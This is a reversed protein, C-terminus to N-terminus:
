PNEIVVSLTRWIYEPDSINAGFSATSTINFLDITGDYQTRVCSVVITFGTMGTATFGADNADSCDGDADNIARYIGWELGAEAAYYAKKGQLSHVSSHLSKSQMQFMVTLAGGVVVMLFIAAVLAVGSQRSSYMKGKRNM